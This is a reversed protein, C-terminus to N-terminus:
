AMEGSVGNPDIGGPLGIDAYRKRAADILEDTTPGTDTTTDAVHIEKDEAM